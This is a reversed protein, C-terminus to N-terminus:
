WDAEEWSRFLHTCVPHIKNDMMEHWVHGDEFTINGSFSSWVGNASVNVRTSGPFMGTAEVSTVTANVLRGKFYVQIASGEDVCHRMAM